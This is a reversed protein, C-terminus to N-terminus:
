RMRIVNGTVRQAEDSCLWAIVGAVEAPTAIRAGDATASERVALTIWGTDTIPPHVINATIGEDALERAASLTYNELAAKAAGYSVEGPFGHPGGSTLSVIRGFALAHARYHRVFAAIMLAGGRADVLLPTTASDVNVEDVDRGFPDRLAPSYTDPRASSANNVLISPAGLEEAAAALIREPTEPDCLDAEIDVCRRGLGHIAHVLDSCDQERAVVYAQPLIRPPPAVLRLYNAVIDTGAKALALATAAGIGHNAGTVIATRPQAALPTM